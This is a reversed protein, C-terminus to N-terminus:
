GPTGESVSPLFFHHVQKQKLIIKQNCIVQPIYSLHLIIYLRLVASPVCICLRSKEVSAATFNDRCAKTQRRGITMEVPIYYCSKQHPHCRTTLQEGSCSGWQKRILPAKKLRGAHPFSVSIVIYRCSECYIIM